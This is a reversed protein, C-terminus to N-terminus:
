LAKGVTALIRAELIPWIGEAAEVLHTAGWSAASDDETIYGYAAAITDMGANIGCEIDRLHDGIYIAEDTACQAIDCAIFLSEPNPKPIKVHDPCIVAIPQSPLSLANMLPTTFLEPKNTAVGWAINHDSLRTLLDYIGPFLQSRASLNQAYTDLLEQRLDDFGEDGEQCAFGLTVLARAGQSVTNRIREPAISPRNHRALLENLTLVFDPATDLLTGDLDFLVAKLPKM